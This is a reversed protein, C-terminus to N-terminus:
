IKEISVISEEITESEAYKFELVGETSLRNAEARAEDETSAEIFISQYLLEISKFTVEYRNM